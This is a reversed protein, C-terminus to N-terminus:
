FDVSFILDSLPWIIGDCALQLLSLRGPLPPASGAIQATYYYLTHLKWLSLVVYRFAYEIM